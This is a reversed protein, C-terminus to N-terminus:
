PQHIYVPRYEFSEFKFMPQASAVTQAFILLRCRAEALTNVMARVAEPHTTHLDLLDQESIVCLSGPQEPAAGQSTSINCKLWQDATKQLSRAVRNDRIHPTSSLANSPQLLCFNRPKTSTKALESLDDDHASSATFKAAFRLTISTGKGVESSVGLSGNFEKAVERVISLGLGTGVSHADAQRFPTFLDNSVFEKSMGIGTDNVELTVVVPEDDLTDDTEASLRISITGSPTYKLANGVIHGTLALKPPCLFVNM